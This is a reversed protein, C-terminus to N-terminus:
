MKEGPGAARPRLLEYVLLALGGLGLVVAGVKNFMPSSTADPTIFGDKFCWGGIVLLIIAPFLWGGVAGGSKAQADPEQGGDKPKEQEPM